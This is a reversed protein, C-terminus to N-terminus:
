AYIKVFSAPKLSRKCLPCRKPSMSLINGKCKSCFVHGCLTVAFYDEERDLKKIWCINCKFYKLAEEETGKEEPDTSELFHVLILIIIKLISYFIGSNLDLLAFLLLLLNKPKLFDM